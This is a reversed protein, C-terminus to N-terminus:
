KGKKYLNEAMNLHMQVTPATKAAFKKVQAVEGDKGYGRMLILAEKHADVQQSLYRGDFDADKAGRLEDIMGQRRDDLHTPPTVNSNISSLISKLKDTTETHATVMKEAFAKVKPNQARQEAIKGAEVEYMDSTAAGTVFGQLSSTVEASVTGVAHGTADKVTSMTDNTTGPAPSKHGPQDAPAGVAAGSLLMLSLAAASILFSKKMSTEGLYRVHFSIAGPKTGPLFEM